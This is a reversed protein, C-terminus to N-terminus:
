EDAALGLEDRMRAALQKRANSWLSAGKADSSVTVKETSIVKGTKKNKTTKIYEKTTPGEANPDASPTFSGGCVIKPKSKALDVLFYDLYISRERVIILNKVQLGRKVQKKMEDNAISNLAGEGFPTNPSTGRMLWVFPGSFILDLKEKPNEDDEKGGGRKAESLMIYETDHADSKPDYTLKEGESCEEDETPEEHKDVLKAAAVLKTRLEDAAPKAEAYVDRQKKFLFCGSTLLSAVSVAVITARM